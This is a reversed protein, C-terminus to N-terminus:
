KFEQFLKEFEEQTDLIHYVHDDTPFQGAKVEAVYEKFANTEVEAVNAYKKIFKPTFAQFKGLMDGSIVLQGDCPGAGISYVPIDLKDAIFKTVEPPVAEVLLSFAGAEQVVLADQILVRANDVRRGQAKFGGLQGSSQPTLGIHGMVPIGADTIARIRSKVRDGGELKICDVDAEKMFRVANRVADEDSVQYSGFPMDGIVWTNPAGRRVAQCHSICDEMTVPITGQYGLVVMGLSDGVLIMEMGAQEAFSATPFDYATVWAVQEEAKKMKMLDLISKKKAM